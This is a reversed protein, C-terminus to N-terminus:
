RINAALCNHIELFIESQIKENHTTQYREILGQLGPAKEFLQQWLYPTSHWSGAEFLKESKLIQESLYRLANNEMQMCFNALAKEYAEQDDEKWLPAITKMFTVTLGKDAQEFRCLIKKDPYRRVIRHFILEDKNQHLILLIANVQAWDIDATLTDIDNQEHCLLIDQSLLNSEDVICHQNFRIGFVPEIYKGTLTIGFPKLLGNTEWRKLNTHVVIM